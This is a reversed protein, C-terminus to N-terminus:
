ARRLVTEVTGTGAEVYVCEDGIANRYYASPEAGTVVYGIRVDNNGLM